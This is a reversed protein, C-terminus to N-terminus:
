LPKAKLVGLQILFGTFDYVRRIREIHGDEITCLSVVPFQFPKGTPALGMFGGVDTGAVHLLWAVRNSDILLEKSEFTANPFAEFWARHVQEIADRGKVTGAWPSELLGEAAHHAAITVADLRSMAEHYTKFFARIEKRTM